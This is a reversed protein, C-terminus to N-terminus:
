FASLIIGSIVLIIGAAQIKTIKEKLFIIALSITVVTFASSIPGILIVNGITFGFNTSLIALIEMVGVIVVIFKEKSKLSSIQLKRKAFFSFFLLFAIVGIKILIALEFWGITKSLFDSATMFIGFFLAALLSEKVGKLLTIKKQKLDNPNLSTLIVGMILIVVAIWQFSDLRQHLFFYSLFIMWISCTNVVSSVISVNGIEFAKYMLLYGFSYIVSCIILIGFIYASINTKFGIFPILLIGFALGATQAWFFTRHHGIKNSSISAFFDSVGWGFMGGLGAFISLLSNNM